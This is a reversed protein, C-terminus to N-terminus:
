CHSDWWPNGAWRWRCTYVTGRMCPGQQPYVYGSIPGSDSSTQALSPTVQPDQTGLLRETATAGVRLHRGTGVQLQARGTTKWLTQTCFALTSTASRRAVLPTRCTRLWTHSPLLTHLSGGICGLLPSMSVLGWVRQWTRSGGLCSTSLPCPNSCCSSETGAKWRKRSSSCTLALCRPM